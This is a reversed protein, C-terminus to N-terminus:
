DEDTVNKLAGLLAFANKTAVEGTIDIANLIEVYGNERTGTQVVTMIFNNSTTHMFVYQKGEYNVLAGEPLAQVARPATRIQGSLFMGPLLKEPHDEFHCHILASRTDDLNRNTLIVKGAYEKQPNNVLALTVSQGVEVKGIDKQFVTLAAHLDAPDILEFLVESPQVYKGINVLIKSVYGNIPSRLSISRSLNDANLSSPDIGILKLKEALSKVLIKQSNLDAQIQQFVKTANIQNDNLEKQRNFELELFHLKEKSILYDEQFKVIQQDEIFAIVEGKKVQMGPLLKTSKVFGGLPFSISIINQPPVDAIGNVKVIDALSKSEINGLVIGARKIQDNNLILINGKDQAISDTIPSDKKSACSIFFFFILIFNLYRM